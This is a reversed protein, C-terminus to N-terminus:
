TIRLGLCIVDRYLRKVMRRVWLLGDWIFKGYRNGLVHSVALIWRSSRSGYLKCKERCLQLVKKYEPVIRVYKVYTSAIRRAYYDCEEQEHGPTLHNLIEHFVISLHYGRTPEDTGTVISQPRRKYHYTIDAVCAARKVYKMLYFIWLHDEFLLGEKCLVNNDIIVSRKLLKNWVSVYIQRYQYFCSRVEERNSALPLVVKKVDVVSKANMLHRCVNGQVMEIDPDEMMRQMLIEICRDTIEDDSDLYYLYEGVAELTGTNRAASLGRNVEHHFIRFQIGRGKQRQPLNEEYDRIMEEAIAMSDDGGCDDVLLCEMSGTYTQRMVSRLCDGIYPAVQYVPIIISVKVGKAEM